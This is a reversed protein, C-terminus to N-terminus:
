YTFSLAPTISFSHDLFYKLPLSIQPHCKKDSWSFPQSLSLCLFHYLMTKLHLVCTYIKSSYKCKLFRKIGYINQRKKTSCKYLMKLLSQHYNFVSPFSISINTLVLFWTVQDKGKEWKVKKKHLSFMLVFLRCKIDSISGMCLM